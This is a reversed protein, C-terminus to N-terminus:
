YTGFRVMDYIDQKMEYFWAVPLGDGMNTRMSVELDSLTGEFEYFDYHTINRAHYKVIEGYIDIADRIRPLKCACQFPMLWIENPLLDFADEFSLEGGSTTAWCRLDSRVKMLETGLLNLGRWAKPNQVRDDNASLGIGWIKDRPACEALIKNGTSLLKEMLEPNQQFKARLGRRMIPGRIRSWLEENYNSVQRGLKKITGLDNTHLIKFYLSSDRFVIAKQAMMFQEASSYTYRGLKFSCPFWNSLYGNDNDPAYFGIVNGMIKCESGM